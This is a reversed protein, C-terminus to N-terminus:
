SLTFFLLLAFSYSENHVSGGTAKSHVILGVLEDESIDLVYQPIM